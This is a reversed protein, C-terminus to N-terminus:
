SLMDALQKDVGRYLDQIRGTRPKWQDKNVLVYEHKLLTKRGSLWIATLRHHGDEVQIEEDECRSLVIPPLVDGQELSEIMGPIQGVRRLKRQSMWLAHIEM